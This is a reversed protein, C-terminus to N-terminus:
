LIVDNLNGSCLTAKALAQRPSPAPRGRGSFVQPQRRDTKLEKTVVTPSM